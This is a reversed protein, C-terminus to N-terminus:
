PTGFLQVRSFSQVSSFQHMNNIFPKRSYKIFYFHFFQIWNFLFSPSIPFYLSFSISASFIFHFFHFLSSLLLPGNNLGTTTLSLQESPVYKSSQLFLFVQANTNKLVNWCLESICRSKVFHNCTKRNYNQHYLTRKNKQQGIM